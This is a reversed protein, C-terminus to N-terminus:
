SPPVPVFPLPLKRNRREYLFIETTVINSLNNIVSLEDDDDFVDEQNKWTDMIIRLNKYIKMREEKNEPLFMPLEIKTTTM